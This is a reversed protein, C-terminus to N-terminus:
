ELTSMIDLETLRNDSLRSYAQFRIRQAKTHKSALILVQNAHTM